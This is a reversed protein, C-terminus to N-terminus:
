RRRVAARQLVHRHRHQARAARGRHRLLRAPQAPHRQHRDPVALRARRAHGGLGAFAGCIAMVVIYNRRVSIGGFRAAEPNFGVARVEYGLTTRNLLVWFVLLAALAIFLGIHLGQLEPDGWFVPLKRARRRHRQLGPRGRRRDNQLPGGLSFLYVGIWIAIWNLMITSIVENAGAIAKLLGAIGAWSRARWRRAALIALLIHLLSPM